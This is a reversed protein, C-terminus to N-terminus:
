KPDDGGPMPGDGNPPLDRSPLDQPPLDQSPVQSALDEPRVQFQLDKPLAVDERPSGAQPGGQNPLDGGQTGGGAPPAPAPSGEAPDGYTLAATEGDRGLVIRAQTIDRVIWGGEIVAGKHVHEGDALLVYPNDGFWVAQVQLGPMPQAGPPNIRTTLVIRGAFTEDFWQQIGAWVPGDKPPLTGSVTLRGDEAGVQLTGIGAEGLRRRLTGAAEGVAAASAGLAQGGAPPVAGGPAGAAPEQMGGASTFRPAFLRGTRVAGVALVVLVLLCCTAIAATVRPAPWVPKGAEEGAPDSLRIQAEGLEVEVPLRVRRGRSLPIREQGIRVNAGTAGIRVMGRSVHLAAHEPAIGPDSLVIDADPSSGIRYDAGDLLLVAGRHAGAVVEFKLRAGGQEAPADAQQLTQSAAPETM